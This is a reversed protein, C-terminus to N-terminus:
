RCSVPRADDLVPELAEAIRTLALQGTEYSGDGPHVALAIGVEGSGVPFLGFQRVLYDGTDEDPGWGGKFVTDAVQGLGYRHEDNIHGMSELVPGAGAMCRMQVALKAQAALTWESDGFGRSNEEFHDGDIVTVEDGTERLVAEVQERASVADGLSEWLEVAVDNDSEEIAANVVPVLDPDSRLAAVALPVKVTSWAAGSMLRGAQQVGAEDFVAIGVQVDLDDAVIGAIEDLQYALPQGDLEEIVESPVPDPDSEPAATGTVTETVSGPLSCASIGLSAAVVLAFVRRSLGRPGPVYM